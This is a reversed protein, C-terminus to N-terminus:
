CMFIITFPTTCPSVPRIPRNFQNGDGDDAVVLSLQDGVQQVIQGPTALALVDFDDQGHVNRLSRDPRGTIPGEGEALRAALYYVLKGTLLTM